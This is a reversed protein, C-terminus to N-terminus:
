FVAAPSDWTVTHEPIEAYCAPQIAYIWYNRKLM